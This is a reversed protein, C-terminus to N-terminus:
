RWPVAVRELLAILVVLLCGFASIVLIYAMLEDIRLAGGYEVIMKGVGATAVYMEAVIVGLLSLNLGLRVGAFVQPLAGPLLVHVAESWPGAGFSRAVRQLMPDVVRIGTMTNVVIPGVGSLFVVAAKSAFGLGLWVILIPILASRPTANFAMLLPDLARGLRSSWGALIGLPLGVVLALGFGAVFEALSVKAHHALEGQHVLSAIARLISSPRSAFQPDLAGFRSGLEWCVLLALV